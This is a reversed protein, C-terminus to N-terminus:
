GLLKEALTVLARRDAKQSALWPVQADSIVLIHRPVKYSSLQQRLRQRLAESVPEPPDDLDSATRAPV